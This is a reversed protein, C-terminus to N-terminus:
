PILVILHNAFWLPRESSSQALALELQQATEMDGVLGEGAREGKGMEAAAFGGAMAGFALAM